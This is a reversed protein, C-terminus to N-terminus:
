KLYSSDNTLELSYSSLVPFIPKFPLRYTCAGVEEVGLSRVVAARKVLDPNCLSIPLAWSSFWFM